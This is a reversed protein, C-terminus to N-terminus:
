RVDVKIQIAFKNIFLANNGFILKFYYLKIKKTRFYTKSLPM